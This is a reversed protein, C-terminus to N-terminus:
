QENLTNTLDALQVIAWGRKNESLYHNDCMYDVTYYIETIKDKKHSQLIEEAFAKIDADYRYNKNLLKKLCHLGFTTYFLRVHAMAYILKASEKETKNIIILPGIILAKKGMMLCNPLFLVLAPFKDSVWTIV